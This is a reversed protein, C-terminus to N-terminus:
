WCFEKNRGLGCEQRKKGPRAGCWVDGVQPCQYVGHYRGFRRTARFFVEVSVIAVVHPPAPRAPDSVEEGREVEIELARRWRARLPGNRGGRWGEGGGSRRSDEADCFKGSRFRPRAPWPGSAASVPSSRFFLGPSPLGPLVLHGDMGTEPGEAARRGGNPPRLAAWGGSVVCLLGGGNGRAFAVGRVAGEWMGPGSEVARECARACVSVGVGGPDGVLIRAACARVRLAMFTGKRSGGRRAGGGGAVGM